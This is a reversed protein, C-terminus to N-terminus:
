QFVGCAVRAGGGGLPKPEDRFNDGMAHIIVAHGRIESVKLRPAVLTHKVPRTGDEDIDVYLIPLDGLHGEGSPGLHKGTGGPDYHGGAALGAVKQGDKEAAECSGNEHIHFGHGGPSLDASLNMHLALGSPRDEATIKGIAKGIGNGETNLLNVEATAEEAAAPAAALAVLAVAALTGLVAKM